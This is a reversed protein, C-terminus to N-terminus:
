KTKKPKLKRLDRIIRTIEEFDKTEVKNPKGTESYSLTQTDRDFRVVVIPCIEGSHYPEQEEDDEFLKIIRAAAQKTTLGDLLYEECCRKVYQKIPSIYGAKNKGGSQGHKKQLQTPLQIIKNKMLETLEDKRQDLHLLGCAIMNAMSIIAKEMKGLQIYDRMRSSEIITLAAAEVEPDPHHKLHIAENLWDCRDSELRARYNESPSLEPDDVYGYIDLHPHYGERTLVKRASEEAVRAISDITYDDDFGSRLNYIAYILEVPSLLDSDIM